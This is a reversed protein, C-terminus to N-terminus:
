ALVLHALRSYVAGGPRLDSRMVSVGTVDFPVPTLGPLHGRQRARHLLARRPGARELQAGLAQAHKGIGAGRADDPRAHLARGIRHSREGGQALSDGGLQAGRTECEVAAEIGV